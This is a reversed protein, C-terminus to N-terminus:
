VAGIEIHPVREDLALYHAEDEPYHVAFLHGAAPIQRYEKLVQALPNREHLGAIFYHWSGKRRQGYLHSLLMRFVAPDDHEVACFALYFYPVARGPAPLAKLPTLKSALNYLPRLSKLALSYQEVCTQRFARQDWAAIVGVIANGKVAVLFDEAKLGALRATGLQGSLYCPSFQKRGYQRNIFDFISQLRSHKGTEVSIGTERVKRRPLDLHIAPTLMRGMDRYKPLGGRARTLNDLALRNGDLILSYYLPVPDDEHLQRLFRYGRALLTSGRYAPDGRLDALYGLHQTSGNIWAPLMMRAGMGVIRGSSREECKIVQVQEGQVRSGIFYSPERRFSVSINGQMIDQSMRRRLAADDEEEALSFLFRSM